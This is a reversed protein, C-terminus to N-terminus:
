AEKELVAIAVAGKGSHMGVIPSIDTIFSPGSGTIDEVLACFREGRERDAAHVLAYEEIGRSKQIDAVISSVKRMLGAASFAAGFAAGRGEEDLTVVPKLHLLGALAGKLPSVRGGKVMFEFTKVSVFIRIRNRLSEALGTLEELGRGEVAARAVKAVLLGQAVSNLRTDVVAVRKGSRNFKEASLSMRKWTGSLAGAVSLVIIGEYHELLYTYLKEVQAASPLSSSPFSCREGQMAYFNEPKLTVRDLYEEGDWVLTLPIQHIQYKDCLEGPIDAISDTVVAIRGARRTVIQEQRVMDDAKQQLVRGWPRILDVVQDPRDSHIHIRCRNVGETLILSDGLPALLRRLEHGKIRSSEFLVETCFRYAPSEGEGHLEDPGPFAPPLVDREKLVLRENLGIPKGSNLRDMGELFSVFGLAGADVVRHRALVELQGTTMELAHRAAELADKMLPILSLRSACGSRIQEAWARMVTLITGERPNEVARYAEEVSRNLIEGLDCLTLE